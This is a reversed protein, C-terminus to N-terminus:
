PLPMPNDSRGRLFAIIDAREADSLMENLMITTPNLLMETGPIARSPDSIFVNLNEYNWVGRPPGWKAALNVNACIHPVIGFFLDFGRADPM